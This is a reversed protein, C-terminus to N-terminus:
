QAMEGAGVKYRSDMVHRPDKACKKVVKDADTSKILIPVRELFSV